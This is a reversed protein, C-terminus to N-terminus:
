RENSEGKAAARPIRRTRLEAIRIACAESALFESVESLRYRYSGAQRHGCFKVPDSYPPPLLLSPRIVKPNANVSHPKLWEHMGEPLAPILEVVCPVDADTRCYFSSPPKKLALFGFTKGLIVIEKV